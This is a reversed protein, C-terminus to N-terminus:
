GLIKEINLMYWDYDIDKMINRIYKMNNSINCLQKNLYDNARRLKADTIETPNNEHEQRASEKFLFMRNLKNSKKYPKEKINKISSHRSIWVMNFEAQLTNLKQALEILDYSENNM